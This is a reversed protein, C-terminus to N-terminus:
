KQNRFTLYDIFGVLLCVCVCCDSWCLFIGGGLLFLFLLVVFCVCVFVLLVLVVLVVVVFLLMLLLTQFLLCTTVKIKNLFDNM